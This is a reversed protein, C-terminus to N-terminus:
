TKEKQNGNLKSGKQLNAKPSLMQLQAYMLHYNQWSLDLEAGMTLRGLKRSHRVRIDALRLRNVRMWDEVLNIFPYVHDVHSFRPTLRRGSIPCRPDPNAPWFKLRYAAIQDAVLERCCQCLKARETPKKKGEIKALTLPITLGAHHLVITRNRRTGLPWVEFYAAPHTAHAKVRDSLASAALIAKLEAALPEPIPKYLEAKSIIERINM